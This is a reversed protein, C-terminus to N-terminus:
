ETVKVGFRDDQHVELYKSPMQLRRPAGEYPATVWDKMSSNLTSYSSLLAALTIHVFLVRRLKADHKRSTELELDIRYISEVKPLPKRLQLFQSSTDILIKPHHRSITEVSDNSNTEKIYLFM